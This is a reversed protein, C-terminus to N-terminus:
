IRPRLHLKSEYSAFETMLRLLYKSGNMDFTKCLEKWVKYAKNGATTYFIHEDLILSMSFYKMATNNNEEQQRGSGHQLAEVCGDM